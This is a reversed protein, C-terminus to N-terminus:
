FIGPWRIAWVVCGIVVAVVVGIYLLTGALAKATGSHDTNVLCVPNGGELAQALKNRHDIRVAEDIRRAARYDAITEISPLLDQM